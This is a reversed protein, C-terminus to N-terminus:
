ITRFKLVSGNWTFGDVCKDTEIICRNEPESYAGSETCSLVPESACMFSTEHSVEVSNLDECSKGKISCRVKGASCLYDQGLIHYQDGKLCKTLDSVVADEEEDAFCTFCEEDKECVGDRVADMHVPEPKGVGAVCKLPGNWEHLAYYADTKFATDYWLGGDAKMYVFSEGPYANDPQGAAFNHYKLNSGTIAIFRDKNVKDFQYSFGSTNPKERLGLLVDANLIPIGAYDAGIKAISIRGEPADHREGGSLHM